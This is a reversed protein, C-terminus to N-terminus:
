LTWQKIEFNLINLSDTLLGHGDLELVNKM